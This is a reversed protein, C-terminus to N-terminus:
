GCDVTLFLSFASLDHFEAVLERWFNFHCTLVNLVHYIVHVPSLCSPSPISHFIHVIASLMKYFM